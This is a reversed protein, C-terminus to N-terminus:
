KRLEVSVVQGDVSKDVSEAYQVRAKFGELDKCPNMEGKPTFGLASLDLNYYQNSYLKITKKAGVVEFDM